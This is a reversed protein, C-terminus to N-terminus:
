VFNRGLVGLPNNHISPVVIGQSRSNIPVNVVSVNETKHNNRNKRNRIYIDGSVDVDLGGFSCERAQYANVVHDNNPVKLHLKKTGFHLGYNDGRGTLSIGASREGAMTVDIEPINIDCLAYSPDGKYNVLKEAQIADPHYLEYDRTPNHGIGYLKAIFVHCAWLDVLDGSWNLCEISGTVNIRGEGMFTFPVFTNDIVLRHINVVDGKKLNVVLGLDQDINKGRIVISDLNIPKDIYEIM